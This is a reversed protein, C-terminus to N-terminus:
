NTALLRVAGLETKGGPPLAVNPIEYAGIGQVALTATYEGPPLSPFHVNGVADSTSHDPWWPGQTAHDLMISVAAESAPEGGPKYVVVHLSAGEAMVFDLPETEKGTAPLVEYFNTSFYRFTPDWPRIFLAQGTPFQLQGLGQSDTRGGSAIPRDFANARLTAIPVVDPLPNGDLDVAHIKATAMDREPAAQSEFTPESGGAEPAQPPPEREGCGALIIALLLLGRKM